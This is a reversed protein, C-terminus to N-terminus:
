KYSWQLQSPRSLGVKYVINHNCENTIFELWQITQHYTVMLMDVQFPDCIVVKINNFVKNKHQITFFYPNM